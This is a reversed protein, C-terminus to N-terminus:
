ITSRLFRKRIETETIKVAIPRGHPCTAANRCRDLAAFLSSIDQRNLYRNAKVAKKCAAQFLEERRLTSGANGEKLRDLLAFLLQDAEADDYWEPLGRIVYTTDGFYELIFGFDRLELIHETLQLHEEYSLQVNLPFALMISNIQCDEAKDAIEEYLIREAAAHQDIIYLDRDTSALIFTGLFQGIVQLDGYRIDHQESSISLDRTHEQALNTLTEEDPILVATEPAEDQANVIGQHLAQYIDGQSMRRREGAVNNHPPQPDVGDLRQGKKRPFPPPPLVDVRDQPRIEKGLNPILLANHHFARQIADSIAAKIKTPETLKVELKGPHVNVDVSDFPLTLFLFVAPYRGAPLFTDYGAEIAGYLERCRVARRNIFFHYHNRAARNYSPRSLFGSVMGDETELQLMNEALERGFAASVAQSLDGSGNSVVARQNGHRLSFAIEPYAVVLNCVIDSIAGLETRPSKLFKKRAPTNYFLRDVLVTTGKRSAAEVPLGAKGGEVTMTYGIDAQAPKSTITLCSVSAISPLAEGRFGLSALHELDSATRIKSTAHRLVSLRMDEATMGWGNDTVQIKSCANDFIRIEIRTAGADIANEVLEKVVSAPREVVEGAAIQNATHKDLIHIKHEALPKNMM